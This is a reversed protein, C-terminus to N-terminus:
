STDIVIMNREVLIGTKKYSSDLEIHVKAAEFNLIAPELGTFVIAPSELLHM